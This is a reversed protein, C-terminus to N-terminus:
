ALERDDGRRCINDFGFVAFFLGLFYVAFLKFGYIFLKLGYDFFAYVSLFPSPSSYPLILSPDHLKDETKIIVTGDEQNEISRIGRVPQLNDIKLTALERGLYDLVNINQIIAVGKNALPDFRLYKVKDPPYEFILEQFNGDCTVTSGVSDKQNFSNGTDFFIQVGSEDTCEEAAM